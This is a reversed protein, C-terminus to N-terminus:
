RETDTNNGNHERRGLNMLAIGVAAMTVPVLVSGGVFACSLLIMIVGIEYLM